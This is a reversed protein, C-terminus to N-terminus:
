LVMVILCNCLGFEDFKNGNNLKQSNFPKSKFSKGFKINQNINLNKEM